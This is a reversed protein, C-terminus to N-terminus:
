SIFKFNINISRGFSASRGVLFLLGENLGAVDTTRTAINSHANDLDEEEESSPESEDSKENDDEQVKEIVLEKKNVVATSVDTPVILPISHEETIEAVESIKATYLYHPLTWTKAMTTEQRVTRQRVARTYTNAWTRSTEEDAVTISSPM